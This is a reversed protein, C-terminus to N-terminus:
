RFRGNAGDEKKNTPPQGATQPDTNRQQISKNLQNKLNISKLFLMILELSWAGLELSWAGLELSWAGLELSW